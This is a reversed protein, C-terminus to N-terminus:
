NIEGHVASREEADACLCSGPDQRLHRLDAEVLVFDAAVGVVVHVREDCLNLADEIPFQEFNGGVYNLSRRAGDSVSEVVVLRRDM